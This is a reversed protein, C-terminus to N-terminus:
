SVLDMRNPISPQLASGQRPSDPELSLTFITRGEATVRAALRGRNANALRLARPLGLGRGARHSTFGRQFIRTLDLGATGGGMDSVTLEVQDHRDVIEVLIPAAGHREANSILNEVIALVESENASVRAIAPAELEISLGAAQKAMVLAAVGVSLDFGTAPNPEFIAALRRLRAAELQLPQALAHDVQGVAAEISLLGSRLDHLLEETRAIETEIQHKTAMLQSQTQLEAVEVEVLIGYLCTMGAVSLLLASSASETAGVDLRIVTATLSLGLGGLGCFAGLWRTRWFGEALLVVALCASVLVVATAVASSSGFETAFTLWSWLAGALLLVLAIPTLYQSRTSGARYGSVLGAIAFVTTGVVGLRDAAASGGLDIGLRLELVALTFVSLIAVTFGVFARGIPPSGDIDVPRRALRYRIRRASM